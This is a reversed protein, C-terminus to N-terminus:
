EAIRYDSPRVFGQHQPLSLGRSVFKTPLYVDSGWSWRSQQQGCCCLWCIVTTAKSLVPFGFNRLVWVGLSLGFCPVPGWIWRSGFFLLNNQNHPNYPGRVPAVRDSFDGTGTFPVLELDLELLSFDSYFRWYQTIKAM